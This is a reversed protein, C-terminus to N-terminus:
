ANVLEWPVSVVNAYEQKAGAAGFTWYAGYNIAKIADNDQDIPEDSTITGERNKKNRHLNYEGAWEQNDVLGGFLPAAADPSIMIRPGKPDVLIRRKQDSNFTRNAEEEPWGNLLARKHIDYGPGLPVQQTHVYIRNGTHKPWLNTWQEIVAPGNANRQRAAFDM